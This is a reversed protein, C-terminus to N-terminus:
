QNCRIISGKWRLNDLAKKIFIFLNSRCWHYTLSCPPPAQNNSSSRIICRRTSLNNKGVTSCCFVEADVLTNMNNTHVQDFIQILWNRQNRHRQRRVHALAILGIGM